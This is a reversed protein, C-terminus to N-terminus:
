AKRIRRPKAKKCGAPRMERLNIPTIQACFMSIRSYSRATEHPALANVQSRNHTIYARTGPAFHAQKQRWFLTPPPVPNSPLPRRKHSVEWSMLIVEILILYPKM